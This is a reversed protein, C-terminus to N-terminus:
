AGSEYPRRIADGQALRAVVAADVQECVPLRGLVPIGGAFHMISAETEPHEAGNFVIGAVPIGRNFLVELSLLTHNISGLYHRSVLIVPLRLHQILDVVLLSENLPVLLGGAGEVILTNAKEPLIFRALEITIGARVASADPSIPYPLRYSEAHFKCGPNSVVRRVEMSDSHELGGSQVPKWYDAGWAQCLVASALTKGVDTGIGSVFYAKM